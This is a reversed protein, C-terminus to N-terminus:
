FVSDVLVLSERLAADSPQVNEEELKCIRMLCLMLDEARSGLEQKQYCASLYEKVREGSPIIGREVMLTIQKFEDDLDIKELNALKPLDFNLGSFSGMPQTILPISRFDIGGVREQGTLASSASEGPQPQNSRWWPLLEEKRFNRFADTTLIQPSLDRWLRRVQKADGAKMARRIEIIQQQIVAASSSNKQSITDQALPSSAAAQKIMEMSLLSNRLEQLRSRERGQAQGIQRDLSALRGKVLERFAPAFDADPDIPIDEITFEGAQSQRGQLFSATNPLGMREAWAEFEKQISTIVPRIKDPDNQYAELILQNIGIQEALYRAWEIVFWALHLAPEKAREAIHEEPRSNKLKPLMQGNRCEKILEDFAEPQFIEAPYLRQGDKGKKETNKLIDRNEIKKELVVGRVGNVFAIFLEPDAELLGFMKALMMDTFLHIHTVLSGGLRKQNEFSM